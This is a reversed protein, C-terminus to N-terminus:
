YKIALGIFGESSFVVDDRSTAAVLSAASQGDPGLSYIDYRANIPVSFRDERAGSPLAPPVVPPFKYYVYPRGWPDLLSGRGMAALTAPVSDLPALEQSIARLDGIARTVRANEISRSLKPISIGALLGIIVMVSMLEILTFASRNRNM